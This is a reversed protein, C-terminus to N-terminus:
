GDKRACIVVSTDQSITRTEIKTINFEEDGFYAYVKSEEPWDKFSKLYDKVTVFEGLEDSDEESRCIEFKPDKEIFNGGFCNAHAITKPTSETQEFEVFVKMDEGYQKLARQLDLVTYM